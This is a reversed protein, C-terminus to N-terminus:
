KVAIQFIGRDKLYECFEDASLQDSLTDMSVRYKYKEWTYKVRIPKFHKEDIHITDHYIDGIKLVITPIRRFLSYDIYARHILGKEVAAVAEAFTNLEFVEDEKPECYRLDNWISTDKFEGKGVAVYHRYNRIEKM